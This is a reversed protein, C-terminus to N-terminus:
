NEFNKFTDDFTKFTENFAKYPDQEFEKREEDVMKEENQINEIVEDLFKKETTMESEHNEKDFTMPEMAKYLNRPGEPVVPSLTSNRNEHIKQILHDM